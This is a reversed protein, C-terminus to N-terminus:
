ILPEFLTEYHLHFCQSKKYTFSLTAVKVLIDLWNRLHIVIKIEKLEFKHVGLIIPNM